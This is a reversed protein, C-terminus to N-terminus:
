AGEETALILGQHALLHIVRDKLHLLSARLSPPPGFEHNMDEQLKEFRNTDM